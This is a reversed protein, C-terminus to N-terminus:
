IPYMLVMLLFVSITSSVRVNLHIIAVWNNTIGRGGVFSFMIKQVNLSFGWERDKLFSIVNDNIVTMQIYSCSILLSKRWSNRKHTKHLNVSSICVSLRYYFFQLMISNYSVVLKYFFVSIYDLIWLSVFRCLHLFNFM